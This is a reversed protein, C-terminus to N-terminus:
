TVLREMPSLEEDNEATVHPGVDTVPSESTMLFEVNVSERAELRAYKANSMEKTKNCEREGTM